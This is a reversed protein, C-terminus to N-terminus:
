VHLSDVTWEPLEECAELETQKKRRRTSGNNALERRAQRELEAAGKDGEWFRSERLQNDKCRYKAESETLRTTKKLSSRELKVRLPNREIPDKLELTEQWYSVTEETATYEIASNDEATFGGTM